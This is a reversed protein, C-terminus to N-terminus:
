DFLLLILFCLIEIVGVVNCVRVVKLVSSAKDIGIVALRKKVEVKCDSSFIRIGIPRPFNPKDELSARLKYPSYLPIAKGSKNKGEITVDEREVASTGAIESATAM